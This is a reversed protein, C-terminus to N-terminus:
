LLSMFATFCCCACRGDWKSSSNRGEIRVSGDASGLLAYSNSWSNSVATVAAEPLVTISSLPLAHDWCCELVQLCCAAAGDWVKFNTTSDMAGFM